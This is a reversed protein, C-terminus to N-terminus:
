IQSPISTIQTQSVLELRQKHLRLSPLSKAIGRENPLNQSPPGGMGEGRCLQFNTHVASSGKERGPLLSNLFNTSQLKVPHTM